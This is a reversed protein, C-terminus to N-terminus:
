DGVYLLGVRFDHGYWTPSNTYVRLGYQHIGVFYKYYTSGDTGIGHRWGYGDMYIELPLVIIKNIDTWTSPFNYYISWGEATSLTGNIVVMETNANRCNTSGIM